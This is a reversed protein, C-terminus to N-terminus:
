LECGRTFLQKTQEKDNKDLYYILGALSCDLGVNLDCAKQYYEIAKVQDATESYPKGKLADFSFGM